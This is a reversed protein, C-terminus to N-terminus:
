VSFRSYASPPSALSGTMSYTSRSNQQEQLFQLSAEIPKLRAKAIQATQNALDSITQMLELLQTKLANLHQRPQAPLHKALTSITINQLPLSLEKALQNTAELRHQEETAIQRVKQHKKAHLQMLESASHQGFNESEQKLLNLLSQHLVVQQDLSSTLQKLLREM